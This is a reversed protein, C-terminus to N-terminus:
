AAPNVIPEPLIPPTTDAYTLWQRWVTHAHLQSLQIRCSIAEANRITGGSWHVYVAGCEADRYRIWAREAAEFARVTADPERDRRLRGRAAALYRALEGDAKTMRASLCAEVAPTTGGPCPPPAHAGRTALTAAAALALFATM